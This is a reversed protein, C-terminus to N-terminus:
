RSGIIMPLFLKQNSSPSVNIRVTATDCLLDSDCIEYVFSDTGTFKANPTYYFTGNSNNLLTGNAPEYCSTCSTNTSSSILNGDPDSDNVIAAIYLPEGEPTTVDDDLAVPPRKSPTGPDNVTVMLEDFATLKSDDATLRLVYSGAGPFSATTGLANPDGFVVGDPGSWTTTTVGPPDPNGDDTVIGLLNVSLVPLTISQNPGADVAPASNDSAGFNSEYKGLDPAAGFFEGAAIDLILEGGPLQYQAVGADIAPSGSQLRYSVDLQPDANLTTGWDVNSGQNVTGNNWFLNYAVVSDGDIEKVAINAHGAFVNNIAMMNDGGTVGYQNGVFTNNFLHIRELLSAARFDEGTIGNDMLGLGAELNDVILNRDIVIVTNTPVIEDNEILQIGDKENEKIINDRMIMVLAPGSNNFIRIEIGDGANNQMLNGQVLATAQDIDVGDDGNGEMVNDQVLAVADNGSDVADTDLDELYNNRVKAKGRIKIGDKGDKITFGVIQTELGTNTGVTITSDGIRPSSIITQDILSEDGTTYYTSALTITRSLYLSEYYTGPSVLVLDGEQAADIASKITSYDQPVRITNAPAANVVIILDDNSTLAGDSVTLRLVYTGTLSFSATTVIERYNGFTVIGPGSVKTWAASLASPPDPLGDDTVVGALFASDALTIKQNSGADVGPPLNAQAHFPAIRDQVVTTSNAGTLSVTFLFAILSMLFVAMGKRFNNGLNTM